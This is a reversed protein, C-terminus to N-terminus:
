DCTLIPNGYRDYIRRGRNDIVQSCRPAAYYVQPAPPVYYAPPPYYPPPAVYGPLPLFLNLGFNPGGYGGHWHHGWALAPTALTMASGAILAAIAGTKMM